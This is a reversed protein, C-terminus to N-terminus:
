PQRRRRAPLTAPQSRPTCRGRRRAEPPGARTRMRRAPRGPRPARPPSRCPDWGPGRARAAAPRLAREAPRLPARPSRHCRWRRCRRRSRTRAQRSCRTRAARSGAPPRTARPRRSGLEPRGQLLGEILERVAADGARAQELLPDVGGGAEVEAVIHEAPEAVGREEDLAAGRGGEGGPQDRLGAIGLRRLVEQPDHLPDRLPLGPEREDPGGSPASEPKEIPSGPRPPPASAPTTPSSSTATM